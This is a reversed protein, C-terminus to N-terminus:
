LLHLLPPRVILQIADDKNQRCTSHRCLSFYSFYTYYINDAFIEKNSKDLSVSLNHVIFCCFNMSNTHQAHYKQCELLNCQRIEESNITEAKQSPTHTSQVYNLKEKMNPSQKLCLFCFHADFIYHLAKAYGDNDCEPNLTKM